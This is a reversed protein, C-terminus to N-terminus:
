MAVIAMNGGDECDGFDQTRDVLVCCHQWEPSVPPFLSADPFLSQIYDTTFYSCYSEWPRGQHQQNSFADGPEVYLEDDVILCWNCYLATEIMGEIELSPNEAKRWGLIKRVDTGYPLSPNSISREYRPDTFTFALVGRPALMERLCAVLELMEKKHTHTFVSFALIVDFQLGFSPIPLSRVGNPNYQSSYRDYHCFHAGPFARRGEELAEQHLDLCWYDDEAVRDGAGALFGGINGGFDLIKKGKWEPSKLIHDFYRFQTERDSIIPRTM